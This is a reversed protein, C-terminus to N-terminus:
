GSVPELLQVMMELLQRKRIPKTLHAHCGADLSAQVDEPLAHATLALVPVAPHGGAREWERIRRTATLGDMQPMQMDMLVLDYRSGLRKAVAEAGHSAFELQYGTDKLFASILFQNDTSDDAVLVRVTGQASRAAPMSVASMASPSVPQAVVGSLCAVPVPVPAFPITVTFCSGHGPESTATITGGMHATLQRCISLGLGTGGFRRTISRDAQVFHDFVTPLVSADMGIGTDRVEIALTEHEPCEPPSAVRYLGLTIAGQETFKVANSLLNMVIQQWRVPDGIVQAPIGPDLDLVLQLQKVQCRLAFIDGVSEMLERPNFAVQELTMQGAEIKAMDLIDNIIALLVEGASRFIQVYHRETEDLDREALLEAMGIIANMPTRIEHSMAALFRSKAQNAQEALQKAEQLSQETQRFSSIDTMVLLLHPTGRSAFPVLDCQVWTSQGARDRCMIEHMHPRSQELAQMSYGYLPTERHWADAQHFNQVHLESDTTGFLRAASENALMCEGSAHYAVIGQTSHAVIKSNLDLLDTLQRETEQMAVITRNQRAVIRLTIYSLFVIYVLANYASFVWNLPSTNYQVYDLSTAVWGRTHALGALMFITAVAGVLWWTVRRPLFLMAILIGTAARADTVLGLNLLGITMNLLSLLVLVGAKFEATCVNRWRYLVWLVAVWLFQLTMMPQWGIILSRSVSLLVGPVSLVALLLLVTDILPIRDMRNLLDVLVRTARSIM